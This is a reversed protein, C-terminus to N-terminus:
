QRKVKNPPFRGCNNPPSDINKNDSRHQFNPAIVGGVPPSTLPFVPFCIANDSNLGVAPYM